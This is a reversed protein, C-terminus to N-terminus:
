DTYRAHWHDPSVSRPAESDVPFLFAKEKLARALRLRQAETMNEMPVLDVDLGFRHGVHPPEWKGYLDFLGGAPLNASSIFLQPTEEQGPESQVAANFKDWAARLAEQVTPRVYGDNTGHGDSTVGTGFRESDPPLQVMGDLGVRIDFRTPRFFVPEGFVIAFGRFTVRTRGAAEPAFYTLGLIGNGGSSDVLRPTPDSGPEIAGATLGNETKIRGPPRGSEHEHGGSGSAARWNVTIACDPVIYYYPLLVCALREDHEQKGTGYPSRSTTTVSPPLDYASAISASATIGPSPGDGEGLVVVRGELAQASVPVLGAGLLLVLTPLWGNSPM